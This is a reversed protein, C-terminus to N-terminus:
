IIFHLCRVYSIVGGAESSKSVLVFYYNFTNARPMFKCQMLKEWEKESCVNFAPSSAQAKVSQVLSFIKYFLIMKHAPQM